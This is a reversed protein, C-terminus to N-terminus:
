VEKMTERNASQRLQDYGRTIQCTHVMEYLLDSWQLSDENSEDGKIEKLEPFLGYLYRAVRLLQRTDPISYDGILSLTQLSNSSIGLAPVTFEPISSLPEIRCQLSRLNPRAYAIRCLAALSIVSENSPLHLSELPSSASFELELLADNASELQWGQVELHRLAQCSLLHRFTNQKLLPVNSRSPHAIFSISFSKLYVESRSIFKGLSFTKPISNLRVVPSRNSTIKKTGIKQKKVATTVPPSYPDILTLSVAELNTSSISDVLDQLLALHGTARFNTLLRFKPTRTSPPDPLSDKPAEPLSPPTPNACQSDAGEGFLSAEELSPVPVGYPHPWLFDSPCSPPAHIPLPDLLHSEIPVRDFSTYVASRADLILSELKPLSGLQELFTADFSVMVDNLELHRMHTFLLVAQVSQIAFQGPGLIIKELRPKEDVLMTLFSHFTDKMSDPIEGVELTKLTSTVLLYLTSISADAAVIVLRTLSPLLPFGPKQLQALRMFTASPIHPARGAGVDTVVFKTVDHAYALLREWDSQAVRGHLYYAGSINVLGPLQELIPVFSELSLQPPDNFGDMTAPALNLSGSHDITATSPRDAAPSAM